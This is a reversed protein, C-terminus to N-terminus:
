VFKIGTLVECKGSLQGIVSQMNNAPKLGADHKALCPKGPTKIKANAFFSVFRVYRCRRCCSSEKEDNDRCMQLSSGRETKKKDCM